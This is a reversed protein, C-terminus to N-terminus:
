EKETVKKVDRSLCIGEEVPIFMAIRENDLLHFVRMIIGLRFSTDAANITPRPQPKWKAQHM